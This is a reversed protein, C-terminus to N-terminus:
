SGSGSGFEVEAVRDVVVVEDGLSWEAVRAVQVAPVGAVAGDPPVDRTAHADRPLVVTFGLRLASRVTDAVCMESQLGSVVVCRVGRSRLLDGLGTGVFADGTCKSVVEDGPDVPLVLARGPSGPPVTADEDGVDQVHVVLAGADRAAAAAATLASVLADAGVVAHRGAVWGAQVDVVVLAEARDTM